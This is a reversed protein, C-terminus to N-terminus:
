VGKDWNTSHAYGLRFVSVDRYEIEQNYIWCLSSLNKIQNFSSWFPIFSVRELKSSKWVHEM